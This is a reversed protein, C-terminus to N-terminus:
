IHEGAEVKVLLDQIWSLEAKLHVMSHDMIASIRPPINRATQETQHATLYQIGTELWEVRSQLYAKIENAPLSDMFFVGIDFPYYQRKMDNWTNRLLRQFEARGDSTIQYISRSPRGGEKETATKEILGEEALKGLAFYISGFAISTWEGMRDEILQKIEYGYLSGERLFGLIVLRTSM